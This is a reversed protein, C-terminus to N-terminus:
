GHQEERISIELHWDYTGQGPVASLAGHLRAVDPRDYPATAPEIFIAYLDQWGGEDPLIGLYPVRDAPFSLALVIGRRPYRLACWGESLAGKVYYKAMHGASKPQLCRLDRRRGDPLTFVPWPHEDGYGGLDGAYNLVTVVSRVSPPLALECGEELVFMSHAAWLFGFPFPSLNALRYDLRLTDESSFRVSKELRYPFRVGHTQLHLAGDQRTCQWPLSWVEGHDPIQIGQWPYGEYCCADITPFMDDLGACEGDVFSGGYPQLLYREGPRQLLLELDLPKYVLSCLKAGTNPLLQARILTSEVTIARQDKYTSDRITATM